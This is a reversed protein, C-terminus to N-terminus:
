FPMGDDEDLPNEDTKRGAVGAFTEAYDMGGTKIREGAGALCVVKLYAKVTDHGGPGVADWAKFEVIVAVLCGSYFLDADITPAAPAERGDLTSTPFKSTAKLVVQDALFPYDRDKTKAEAMLKNGDSFAYDLDDRNLKKDPWQAKAVEAMKAKIRAVDPNTPSMMFSGSFKPEGTPQGKKDKAREPVFFHPWVLRFPEEVGLTVTTIMEETM